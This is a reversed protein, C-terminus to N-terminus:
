QLGPKIATQMSKTIPSTLSNNRTMTWTKTTTRTIQAICARIGNRRSGRTKDTVLCPSIPSKVAERRSLDAIHQLENTTDHRAREWIGNSRRLRAQRWKDRSKELGDRGTSIRKFGWFEWTVDGYRSGRRCSGRSLDGVEGTMGTVRRVVYHFRPKVTFLGSRARHALLDLLLRSILESAGLLHVSHHTSTRLSDPLTYDDTQTPRAPIQRLPYHVALWRVVEGLGIWIAETVPGVGLEGQGLNALAVTHVVGDRVRPLLAWGTSRAGPATACQVVAQTLSACLEAEVGAPLLGVPERLGGILWSVM